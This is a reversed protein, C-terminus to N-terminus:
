TKEARFISAFTPKDKPAMNPPLVNPSRNKSLNVRQHDFMVGNPKKESRNFLCILLM